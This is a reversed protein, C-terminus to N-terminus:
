NAVKDERQRSRPALQNQCHPSHLQVPCFHSRHLINVYRESNFYVWSRREVLVEMMDQFCTSSETTHWLTQLLQYNDLLFNRKQVFNELGIKYRCSYLAVYGVFSKKSMTTLQFIIYFCNAFSFTLM